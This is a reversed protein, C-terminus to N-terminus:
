FLGKYTYEAGLISNYKLSNNINKGTDIDATNLAGCVVDIVVVVMCSEVCFGRENRASGRCNGIFMNEFM